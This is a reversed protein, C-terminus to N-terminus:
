AGGAMGGSFKALTVIYFLVVLGLLVVGLAINRSRRAKKQSETLNVTEM